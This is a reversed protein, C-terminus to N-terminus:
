QGEWVKESFGILTEFSPFTPMEPMKATYAEAWEPMKPLSTTFSEAWEPLKPLASTFADAVERVATLTAEQGQRIADLVKEQVATATGADKTMHVGRERHNVWVTDRM